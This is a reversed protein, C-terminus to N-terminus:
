EAASMDLGSSDDAHDLVRAPQEALDVHEDVVGADLVDLAISVKGTALHSAIMAMLRDEAKWAM